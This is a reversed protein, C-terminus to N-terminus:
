TPAPQRSKPSTALTSGISSLTYGTSSSGTTFAQAREPTTGNLQQTISLSAEGTNSILTTATQAETPQVIAFLGCALMMLALLATRM